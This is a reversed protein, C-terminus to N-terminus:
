PSLRASSSNPPSNGYRQHAWLAKPFLDAATVTSLSNNWMVSKGLQEFILRHCSLPGTTKSSVRTERPNRIHRVSLTLVALHGQSDRFIVMTHVQRNVTQLSNFSVGSIECLQTKSKNSQDTESYFHYFISLGTTHAYILMYRFSSGPFNFGEKFNSGTQFIQSM